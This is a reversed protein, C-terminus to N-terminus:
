SPGEGWVQSINAILRGRSVINAPNEKTPVYYWNVLEKERVKNVRNGVFQKYYGRERKTM